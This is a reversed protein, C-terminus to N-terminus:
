TVCNNRFVKVEASNGTPPFRHRHMRYFGATAELASPNRRAPMITATDKEGRNKVRCRRRKNGGGVEQWVSEARLGAAEGGQCLAYRM